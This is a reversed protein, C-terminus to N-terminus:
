YSKRLFGFTICMSNELFRNVDIIKKFQYGM